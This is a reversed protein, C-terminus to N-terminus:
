AATEERAQVCTIASVVVVDDVGAGRSLDNVPKAFGQIVPGYAKANALYQVLKYAINGSNLDPFVLVNAKGAVGSEPAKRQAVAPVLAADGQLEGDIALEPAAKRAIDVASRVHNVLEHHASGATSFSLLAARPEMGLLVQASRASAVAIDALQEPTPDINMACDAFILVKDREGLCEPVEMIFFSSPTQIDPGHGICLGAAALMNATTTAVGGVMGDADGAAVLMAAFFLERKVIRMAVSPKVGRREAYLRAYSEVSDSDAPHRWEFEDLPVGADEPADQPRGVILPRCIGEEKLRRAARLIRADRGEPFVIRKPNRKAREIFHEAIGM